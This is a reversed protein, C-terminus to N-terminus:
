ERIRKLLAIFRPEANLGRLDSDHKLHSRKPLTDAKECAELENLAATVDGNLAFVCALNYNAQASIERARLAIEKARMLKADRATGNLEAAEKALAAAWNNLVVPEDPKIKLAQAFKEEAEAFKEERPEGQLEDAAQALASGWSRFAQHYNPKIKLAQSFKEGAKALKALRPERQLGNAEKLLSVGWNYLAEHIDPKIKLAQAFKKRAETFKDARQNGQLEDAQRALTIGKSTYAWARAKREGDSMNTNTSVTVPLTGSLLAMQAQAESSGGNIWDEGAQELRTRTSTLLDLGTDALVPYDVVEGLQKLVHLPPNRVVEPPWCDLGKALAIMTIDFDCDGVYAAYRKELLPKLHSGPEKGYGMWILNFQSNFEETIIGLAPDTEGSYGFVLTLHNRVSDALLPRLADKHEETEEASNLHRLGYSQGHLHFIAPTALAAIERTPSVGFDYVPLHMGLLSAAKELVLDFNFTLIRSVKCQKIICALAIHGWNIRSKELLPQILTKRDGPSLAGMVRGYDKREDSSLNVLCHGFDQNIQKILELATPIGATRSAGAGMIISIHSARRIYGVVEEIRM